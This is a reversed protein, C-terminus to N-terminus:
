VNLFTSGIRLEHATGFCAALQIQGLPSYNALGQYLYMKSAMEELFGERIGGLSTLHGSVSTGMAGQVEGVIPKIATHQLQRGM